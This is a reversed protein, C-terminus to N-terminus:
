PTAAAPAAVIFEVRNNARRNRDTVNPYLPETAGVGEARMRERAIGQDALYDVIQRARAETLSAETAPDENDDTHARVRVRIDPEAQLLAAVQDLVSRGAGTIDNGEFTVGETRGNYEIGTTSRRVAASAPLARLNIEFDMPGIALDMEGVQAAYGPASAIYRWSGAPVDQTFVPTGADFSAEVTGGAGRFLLSVPAPNGSLVIRGELRAADYAIDLQINGERVEETITVALRRTEYTPHTVVIEVETGPPFDFSRFTGDSGTIQDTFGTGVYEIRAGAIPMGSASDSITGRVHSVAAPITPATRPTPATGTPNLDYALGFIWNWAPVAPTGQSEATTLGLDFGTQLMLGPGLPASRAGITLYHPLASGGGESVCPQPNFSDCTAGNPVEIAWEMMPTIYPLPADIGLAVRGRNYDHVNQGFREVRDLTRPFLNRSRDILYGANFHMRLPIDALHRFDASALVLLDASLAGFDLGVSEAGAPVALRVMAGARIGPALEYMGKLGLAPDGVTQILEPRGLTNTTARASLTFFAEFYQIPTWSLGLTGISRRAQDGNRVVSSGGFYEGTLSLGFHGEPMGNAHQLRLGGTGGMVAPGYENVRSDGFFSRDTARSGAAPAAATATRPAAAPTASRAPAAAAPAAPAPAPETGAEVPQGIQASVSAPLVLGLLVPALHRM